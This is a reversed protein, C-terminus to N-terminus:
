LALFMISPHQTMINQVRSRDEVIHMKVLLGAMICKHLDQKDMVSVCELAM